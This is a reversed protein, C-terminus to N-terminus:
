KKRWDAKRAFGFRRDPHVALIGQFERHFMTSDRQPLPVDRHDYHPIGITSSPCRAPVFGIRRLAPIL